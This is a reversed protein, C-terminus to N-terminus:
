KIGLIKPYKNNSLYTPRDEIPEFGCEIPSFKDFNYFKKNIIYSLILIIMSIIITIKIMISM